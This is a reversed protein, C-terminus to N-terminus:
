IRVWEDLYIDNFDQPGGQNFWKDPCITTGEKDSLWAGWWGFSSNSIIKHDCESILCLDYIEDNFPSYFINDGKFNEKCWGIDDSIFIFNVDDGIYNISKNYYNIDCVLHYNPSKVYDGRRVQVACTKGSFSSTFTKVESKILDDFEFTDKILTKVHKFYKESQFYGVLCVNNEHPIEQHSFGKERFIKLNPIENLNYILNLNKYFNNKYKNAVNGQAPTHCYNLDFGYDINCKVAHGITASIQFMQNGLGGQLACTIM